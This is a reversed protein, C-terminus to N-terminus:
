CHLTLKAYLSDKPYYVGPLLSEADELFMRAFVPALSTELVLDKDAARLWKALGNYKHMDRGPWFQKRFAMPYWTAGPWSSHLRPSAQHCTPLPIMVTFYQEFLYMLQELTWLHGREERQKRKMISSPQIATLLGSLTTFRPELSHVTMHQIVKSTWQLVNEEMAVNTYLQKRMCIESAKIEPLPVELFVHFLADEHLLKPEICDRFSSIASVAEEVSKARICITDSFELCLHNFLRELLETSISISHKAYIPPQPSDCKPSLDLFNCILKEGQVDHLSTYLGLAQPQNWGIVTLSAPQSQLAVKESYPEYLQVLCSSRDVQSDPVVVWPVIPSAMM